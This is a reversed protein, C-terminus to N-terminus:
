VTADVWAQVIVIVVLELVCPRGVACEGPGVSLVGWSGCLVGWLGWHETPRSRVINLSMGFVAITLGLVLSKNQM